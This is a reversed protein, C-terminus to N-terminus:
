PVGGPNPDAFFDDTTMYRRGLGPGAWEMAIWGSAYDNRVEVTIPATGKELHIPESAQGARTQRPWADHVLTDGVTVRGADDCYLFFRYDGTKPVILQGSMRVSISRWPMGEGLEDNLPFRLEGRLIRTEIPTEFNVGRYFTMALGRLREGQGTPNSYHLIEEQPRMEGWQNGFWFAEGALIVMAIVVASWTWASMPRRRRREDREAHHQHQADIM